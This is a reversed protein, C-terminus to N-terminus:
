RMVSPSALRSRSTSAINEAWATLEPNGIGGGMQLGRYLVAVIRGPREGLEILRDRLRAHRDVRDQM